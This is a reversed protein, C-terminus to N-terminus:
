TEWVKRRVPRAPAVDPRPIEAWARGRKINAITQRTVGYDAAIRAPKEGKSLRLLIGQLDERSLKTGHRVIGKATRTLGVWSKGAVLNSIAAPSVQYEVALDKQAEGSAVRNLISQATEATLKRNM